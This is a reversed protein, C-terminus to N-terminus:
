ATEKPHIFTMHAEKGVIGEWGCVTCLFTAVAEPKSREWALLAMDLSEYLRPLGSKDWLWSPTQDAIREIQDSLSVVADAESQNRIAIM